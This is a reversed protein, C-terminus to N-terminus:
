LYDSVLVEGRCANELAFQISFGAVAQSGEWVVGGMWRGNELADKHSLHDPQYTIGAAFSLESWIQFM